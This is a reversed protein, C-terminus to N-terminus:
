NEPSASQEGAEAAEVAETIRALAVKSLHAVLERLQRNEERLEEIENRTKIKRKPLAQIRHRISRQIHGMFRDGTRNLIM